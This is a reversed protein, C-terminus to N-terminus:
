SKEEIIFTICEHCTKFLTNLDINGAIMRRLLTTLEPSCETSGNENCSHVVIWEAERRRQVIEKVYSKFILTRKIIVLSAKV